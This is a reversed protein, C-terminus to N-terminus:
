FQMKILNPLRLIHRPLRSDQKYKELKISVHLMRNRPNIKEFLPTQIPIINLEQHRLWKTGYLGNKSLNLSKTRHVPCDDEVFSENREVNNMRAKKLADTYDLVNLKKRYVLWNGMM